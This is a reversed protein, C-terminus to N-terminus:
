TIVLYTRKYRIRLSLVKEFSVFMNKSIIHIYIEYKLHKDKRIILSKANPKNRKFKENGIFVVVYVCVYIGVYLFDGAPRSLTM